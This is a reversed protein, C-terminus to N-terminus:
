NIDISLRVVEDTRWPKSMGIALIIDDFFTNMLKKSVESTDKATNV